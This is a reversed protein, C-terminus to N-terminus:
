LAALSDDALFHISWLVLCQGRPYGSNMREAPSLTVPSRRLVKRPFPGKDSAVPGHGSFLQRCLTNHTQVPWAQKRLM